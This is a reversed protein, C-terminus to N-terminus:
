GGAAITLSYTFQVSDGSVVNIAAFVSRDLMTGSTSASFVAHESIALTSVYAMTAVSRFVNASPNSQTGSVRSVASDTGLATDGIAEAGVGTGSAHWTFESIDSGGANFDAAIYNVAATTVVRRSLVGLDIVTGDAKLKTGSLIGKFTVLGDPSSNSDGLMLARLHAQWNKVAYLTKTFM